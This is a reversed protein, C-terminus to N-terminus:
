KSKPRWRDLNWLDAIQQALAQQLDDSMNISRGVTCFATDTGDPFVLRVRNKKVGTTIAKAQKFDDINKKTYKTGM